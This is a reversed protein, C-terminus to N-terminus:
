KIQMRYFVHPKLKEFVKLVLFKILSCVVASTIIIPDYDSSYVFGDNLMTVMCKCINAGDTLGPM